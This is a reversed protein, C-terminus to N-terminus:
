ISPLPTYMVIPPRTYAASPTLFFLSFPIKSAMQCTVALARTWLSGIQSMSTRIRDWFRIEEYYGCM